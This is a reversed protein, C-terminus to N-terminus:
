KEEPGQIGRGKEINDAINRLLRAMDAKKNFGTMKLGTVEFGLRGSNFDLIITIKRPFKDPNDNKPAAILSGAMLGVALLILFYKM